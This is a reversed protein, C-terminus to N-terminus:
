LTWGTLAIYSKINERRHSHLNGDGPINCWTSGTLSSKEPSRIAVMMLTILILSSLVDNATVILELQGIIKLGIISVIRDESVDTRVLGV